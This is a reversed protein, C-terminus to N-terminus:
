GDSVIFPIYIQIAGVHIIVTTINSSDTGDSAHYTFSDTGSFGFTPTYTFSGDANFSLTGNNPGTDLVATLSDSDSDGDNNLVGPASLTLVTNEATTYNDVVAFPASNLVSIMVTAVNSSNNGDDAHYTFNDSGEFGVTPTYIFSGDANFSLTGHSPNTDLVASLSDGDGDTDNDLVGPAAVSLAVEQTTTYVDAVAVPVNDPSITLTVPVQLQPTTIANSEICLTATYQGPTLGTSDFIVNVPTSANEATSGSTPAITLWPIDLPPCVITPLTTPQLVFLGQEMGSVIIVGSGFYPYNSWSGNYGTNDNSPYIDFYAEEFLNANAIDSIDLIRFGARYNSQFAYDGKIYLNHDIAATSATFNGILLPNDLDALDWIYTRTNNGSSTEDLEDDLLFYAHDETLWGQHTYANGPYDPNALMVPTAKNTVDVITLTGTSGQSNFCIEKGQHEIDPGHYIVCQADHTYGDASYCGVFTPSLPNQINVIHLGGGCDDTGVAYAFGTDENIVINHARGFGPYHTTNSFTIPPSIIGCLQALNFVQM